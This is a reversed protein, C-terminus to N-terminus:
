VRATPADLAARVRTLLTDATFPKEILELLPNTPGPDPGAIVHHVYGSMFLVKLDPRIAAARTAVEPGQMEPMVVDTLLLDVPQERRECIELAASGSAAIMAGYGARKLVQEVLLRIGPEDEVVLV